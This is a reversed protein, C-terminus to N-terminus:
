VCRLVQAVPKRPKQPWNGPAAYGVTILMAPVERESLGVLKSVAVPDFGIMPGSSLGMGQAALILTMGALSASRLAEDRQLQPNDEYASKAMNVWTDVISQSVIGKAVAPALNKELELHAALTGCVVFTVAADAVKQQGYAAAKLKEKTDTSTVAVFKWNQFNFASPALTALRVLEHIQENSLKRSPDFHNTSVRAEILAQISSTSM